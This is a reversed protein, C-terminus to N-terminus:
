PCARAVDRLTLAQLHPVPQRTADPLLTRTPHPQACRPCADLAERYLLDCSTCSVTGASLEASALEAFVTRRMAVLTKLCHPCDEDPISHCLCFM